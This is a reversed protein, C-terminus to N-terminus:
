FGRKVPYFSRLFRLSLWMHPIGRGPRVSTCYIDLTPCIGVSDNIIGMIIIIILVLIPQHQYLVAVNFYIDSNCDNQSKARSMVDMNKVIQTQVLTTCPGISQCKLGYLWAM